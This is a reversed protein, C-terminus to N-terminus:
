GCYHDGMLQLNLPSVSTRGSHWAVLVCSLTITSFIALRYILVSQWGALFRNLGLDLEVNFLDMADCRSLVFNIM